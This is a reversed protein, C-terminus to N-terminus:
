PPLCSGRGSCIRSAQSCVRVLGLWPWVGRLVNKKRPVSGPETRSQVQNAGQRIWRALTDIEPAKVNELKWRGHIETAIKPPTKYEGEELIQRKLDEAHPEWEPPPRKWKGRKSQLYSRAVRRAHKDYRQAFAVGSDFSEFMLRNVMEVGRKELELDAGAYPGIFQEIIQRVLERPSELDLPHDTKRLAENTLATLEPAKAVLMGHMIEDEKM